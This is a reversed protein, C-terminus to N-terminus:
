VHAIEAQIQALLEPDSENRYAEVEYKIAFYAENPNRFEALQRLYEKFYSIYFRFVGSQLIQRVHVHEHTRLRRSPEPMSYFIFPFLTIADVRLLKPIISNCVERVRM